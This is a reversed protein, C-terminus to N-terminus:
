ELPPLGWPGAVARYVERPLVAVAAITVLEVSPAHVAPREEQKVWPVLAALDGPPVGVDFATGRGAAEWAVVKALDGSPGSLFISGGVSRALFVGAPAARRDSADRSPGQPHDGQLGRVWHAGDRGTVAPFAPAAPQWPADPGAREWRRAVADPSRWAPPIVVLLRRVDPPFLSGPEVRWDLSQFTRRGDLRWPSGRARLKVEATWRRDPSAKAPGRLVRVIGEVEAPQMSSAGHTWAFAKGDRPIAIVAGAKLRSELVHLDVGSWGRGGARRELRDARFRAPGPPGPLVSSAPASTGLMAASVLVALATVAHAYEPTYETV